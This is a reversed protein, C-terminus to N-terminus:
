NDSTYTHGSFWQIILSVPDKPIVSIFENIVMKIEQVIRIMSYNVVFPLVVFMLFLDVPWDLWKDLYSIVFLTIKMNALRSNPLMKSTHEILVNLLLMYDEKM